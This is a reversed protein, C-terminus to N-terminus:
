PRCETMLGDNVYGLREELVAETMEVTSASRVRTWGVLRYDGSASLWRHFADCM